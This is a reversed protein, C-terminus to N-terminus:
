RRKLRAGHRRFDTASGISGECCFVLNCYKCPSLDLDQWSRTTKNSGLSIAGKAPGLGLMAIPATKVPASIPRGKQPQKVLSVSPFAVM